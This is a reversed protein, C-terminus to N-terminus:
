LARKIEDAVLRKAADSESLMPGELYKANGHEHHLDLREHQYRAYPGAYSISGERGEVDINVSGVLHGTELPTQDASVGRVHELAKAIGAPIAASTRKALANLDIGIEWDIGGSM